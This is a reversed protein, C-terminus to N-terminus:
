TCYLMSILLSADSLCSQPTVHIHAVHGGVKAICGLERPGHATTYTLCAEQLRVISPLAQGASGRAAAPRSGREWRPETIVLHSVDIVPLLAKLGTLRGVAEESSM